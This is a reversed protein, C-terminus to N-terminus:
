RVIDRLEKRMQLAVQYEYRTWGPTSADTRLLTEHEFWFQETAKFALTALLIVWMAVAYAKVLLFAATARHLLRAPRSFVARWATSVFWLLPVALLGITWWFTSAPPGDPEMDFLMEGVRNQWFGGPSGSIGVWGIWPVFVVAITVVLGSIWSPNSFGFCGALKALRWRIILLPLILWLVLLGLFHGGPLLLSTGLMGFDRGGLPTLRNIAMVFFFPLVVGAGLIWAWDVPRVLQEMRVALRRVMASARFRYLAAFGLSVALVLWIVCGSFRSLIEHDMLRGPKLDADTLPPPNEAMRFVTEVNGCLTGTVTRPEVPKGDLIFKRASRAKSRKELEASIEKWREAEERLGLKEAAPAFSKAISKAVGFFVLDDVLIGAEMGLTGRLFAETDKSLERFGAVDGAEGLMWAKAAIVEGMPWTQISSFVTTLSLCGISDLTELLNRQPLLPLRKRLMEVSYSECKAQERAERLLALSQDMRAQDLIEWTPPEPFFVTGDVRVAKGEKRKVCKKGAVAAALHAFWANDPDIRGATERFDPPLKEHEALYATAYEAFFAPNEPESRWLAAKREDKDERKMDGFLLLKQREDLRASIREESVPPQQAFEDAAAGGWQFYRLMEVSDRFFVVGSILILVAGLVMWWVSRGTGADLANWRSVAEEAGNDATKLGGLFDEAALHLEAKDALPRAAVEILPDGSHILESM